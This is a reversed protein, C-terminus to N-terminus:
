CLKLARACQRIMKASCLKDTGVKSWDEIWNWSEERVWKFQFSPVIFLINKIKNAEAKMDILKPKVWMGKACESDMNFITVM